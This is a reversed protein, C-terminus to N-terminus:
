ISSTYEDFMYILWNEYELINAANYINKLDESDMVEQKRNKYIEMCFEEFVKKGDKRRPIKDQQKLREKAEKRKRIQQALFQNHRRIEPTDREGPEDFAVRKGQYTTRYRNSYVELVKRQIPNLADYLTDRNVKREQKLQEPDITNRDHEPNNAVLNDVKVRSRKKM